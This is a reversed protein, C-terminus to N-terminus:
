YLVAPDKVIGMKPPMMIVIEPLVLINQDIFTLIRTAISGKSLKNYCLVRECVKRYSWESVVVQSLVGDFGYVLFPPVVLKGGQVYENLM